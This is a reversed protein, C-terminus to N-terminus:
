RFVTISRHWRLEVLCSRVVSRQTPPTVLFNGGADALTNIVYFTGNHCSISPAFVGRSIGLTDISMQSPRELVNGIQTWNVLDRSHFLPIGPYYAFTSTVM